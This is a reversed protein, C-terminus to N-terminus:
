FEDLLLVWQPSAGKMHSYARDCGTLWQEWRLHVVGADFHFDPHEPAVRHPECVPPLIIVNLNFLDRADAVCLQGEQQWGSRRRVTGKYVYAHLAHM